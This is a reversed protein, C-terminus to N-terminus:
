RRAMQVLRTRVAPDGLAENTARNLLAVVDAPLGAPGMFGIWSVLEFGPLGTEHLTPWEPTLPSRQLSSIGILKVTKGEDQARASPTFLVDLNQSIVANMAPADGNFPVHVMDLGAAREMM